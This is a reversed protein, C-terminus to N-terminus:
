GFIDMGAVAYVFIILMFLIGVNAINNLALYLTRLLDQLKKSTKIMRLLRAVRIIRFATLNINGLFPSESVLSVVVISFDFKNWDIYFYYRPGLGILKIIAEITFIVVFVLNFVYLVYMYKAPAGYFEMCMAITNLVIVLTIFWEFHSSKHALYWFAHRFCDKPEVCIVAPRVEAMFRQIKVWEKQEDTLNASGETKLKQENFQRVIVSIFLNMVFFTTIFIFTIFLLSLHERRDLSLVGDIEDSSDLSAFMIDPWMELTSVEFFTLMSSFINDYNNPPLVWELGDALCTVKNVDVGNGDADVCYSVRGSLSQLGIVGFVFYFLISILGVNILSPISNLISNVVLKMGENKSVLKLPRLARLARFARVFSVDFGERAELIWAAISIVVIVFDLVNFSDRLYTKKGVVFGMVFVKLVCEAIFLASVVDGFLKLTAKAYSETLVPEELAMFLSNIGILHLIFQEFYPNQVFEATIVRLCNEPGFCYLSNGTLELENARRKKKLTKTKKTQLGSQYDTNHRDRTQTLNSLFAPEPDEVGAGPFAEAAHGGGDPGPRGGGAGAALESLKRNNNTSEKFNHNANVSAARLDDDIDREGKKDKKDGM